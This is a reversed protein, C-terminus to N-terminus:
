DKYHEMLIRQGVGKFYDMYKIKLYEIKESGVNDVGYFKLKKDSKKLTLPIHYKNAM